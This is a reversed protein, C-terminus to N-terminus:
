KITFVSRGDSAKSTAKSYAHMVTTDFGHDRVVIHKSGDPHSWVGMNEIDALDYPPHGTNNHYNLFKQTLPHQEVNDLRAEGSAGRSHYTGNNRRHSRILTDVFDDHSIGNPFKETKTLKTFDNEKIDDAHGVQSWQHGEHDHSILPPFIGMNKNSKFHGHNVSDAQLIRYSNPSLKSKENTSIDGAEAKNQLAGLSHGEYSEKDHYKDLDATIAVKTGIKLKTPQGDVHVEVPEDHKLYARSSGQPMNGEIGTKEGAKSLQQIKKSLLTQKKISKPNNGRPTEIIKQLEPHLEELMLNSIFDKFNRIIM